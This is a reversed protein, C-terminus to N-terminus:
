HEGHRRRVELIARGIRKWMAFAEFDNLDLMLAATQAAHAPADTGYEEILSQARQYIDNGEM